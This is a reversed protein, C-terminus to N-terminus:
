NWVQQDPIPPLPPVDRRALRLCTYGVGALGTLLGVGHAVDRENWPQTSLTFAGEVFADDEVSCGFDSDRAYCLADLISALGHCLSFDVTPPDIGRLFAMSDKLAEDARRRVIDSSVFRSTAMWACAIGSSGHCWSSKNRSTAARYDFVADDEVGDLCHRCSLASIAASTFRDDGLLAGAQALALAIGGSGHGLGALYPPASAHTSRWALGGGVQHSMCLIHEAHKRIVDRENGRWVDPLLQLGSIIGASGSITDLQQGVPFDAQMASVSVGTVGLWESASATVYTVGLMGDFLGWRERRLLRECSSLMQRLGGVAPRRFQQDGTVKFLAALFLVVGAVGDHLSPGCWDTVFRGSMPNLTSTRWSCREGSWTAASALCTGIQIARSLAAESHPEARVKDFPQPTAM